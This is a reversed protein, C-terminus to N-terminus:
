RTSPTRHCCCARQCTAAPAAPRAADGDAAGGRQRRCRAAASGGPGAGLRVLGSRGACSSRTAPACSTSWIPLYRGTTWASWRSPSGSTRRGPHRDLLQAPGPLRGRGHPARRRAPRAPPRGLRPGGARHQAREPDRRGARRGARGALDTAPTASNRGRIATTTTATARGSNPITTTACSSPACGSPARGSTCTRCWCGPRGATSPISRRGTTATRVWARGGTLDELPLNTTYGGYSHVLAHQAATDIGELLVDVSVGSWATDLKSWKTVCHIDTTLQEHPLGQFQEWTWTVPDDIEGVISLAWEDLSVEPTPGASLVPFDDTVYQGPPVRAPDSGTRGRGRFGRSIRAM